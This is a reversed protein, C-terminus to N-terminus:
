IKGIFDFCFCWFNWCLFFMYNIWNISTGNGERWYSALKTNSQELCRLGQAAAYGCRTKTVQCNLQGSFIMGLSDFQYGKPFQIWSTEWAVKTPFISRQKQLIQQDTCSGGSSQESPCSPVLADCRPLRSWPKLTPLRLFDVWIAPVHPNWWSYIIIKSFWCNQVMQVMRYVILHMHGMHGELCTMVLCKWNVYWEGVELIPGPGCPCWWGQGGQRFLLYGLIGQKM